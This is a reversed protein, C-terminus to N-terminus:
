RWWSYGASFQVSVTVGPNNDGLGANSIHIAKAAFNVSHHPRIFVNAGIGVQPTFNIVSTGGVAQPFKHNTWLLGGGLQAWPVIRGPVRDSFNWRLLFPTVSAGFYDKGPTPGKLIPQGNAYFTLNQPPYRGLWFPTVELLAEGRGRLFRPGDMWRTEKGLELGANYLQLNEYYYLAGLFMRRSPPFGGQVFFGFQWPRSDKNQEANNSGGQEAQAMANSTCGPAIAAFMLFILIATRIVRLRLM